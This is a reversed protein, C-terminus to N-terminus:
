AAKRAVPQLLLEKLLTEVSIGRVKANAEMTEREETTLHLDADMDIEIIIKGNINM